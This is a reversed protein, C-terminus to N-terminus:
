FVIFCKPIHCEVACSPMDFSHHLLSDNKTALLVHNIEDATCSISTPEFVREATAQMLGNKGYNGIIQDCKHM